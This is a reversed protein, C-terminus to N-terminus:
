RRARLPSPPLPLSARVSWGGAHPQPGASLTGGLAEVRERMGVLGYGRSFAGFVGRTLRGPSRPSSVVKGAEDRNGGTQMEIAEDHEHEIPALHHGHRDPGHEERRAMAGGGDDVVEVTVADRNHTLTVTVACGRPAHRAVNTLAEQVVRHITNAIVSPWQPEGDPLRLRVTPGHAAFREVLDTLGEPESTAPAADDTDRLLGVVRRTAALADAGASEIDAFSAAAADPDTRATIPAAQAMLVISTLQTEPFVELPVM